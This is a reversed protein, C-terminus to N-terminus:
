RLWEKSLSMLVLDRLTPPASGVSRLVAKTLRGEERFGLWRAGFLAAKHDSPIPAWLKVIGKDRFVLGIAHQVVAGAMRGRCQPHFGVHMEAGVSTRRVFEVFGFITEDLTAALTWVDPHLMHPVYEMQEPQPSMVDSSPWYVDPRQRFAQMAWPDFREVVQVRPVEGDM